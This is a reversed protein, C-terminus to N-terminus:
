RGECFAEWAAMIARRKELSDSRRYALETQDGAAHALCIEVSVRDFHTENGMYDRFSSRLGHITTQVGMTQVCFKYIAKGTVHGQGDRGPWVFANPDPGEGFANPGRQRMLLAFARDSLPVRHVRGAKMREAPVTWVREQWDVEWWKMGCVENERAATLVLFEIAYPSLADGQKQVARLARVFDPIDRYDLAKFHKKEGNVHPMLERMHERWEAVQAECLGKARAYRMVQLIAALARRAQNPATLWLTHLAAAIHQPGIATIPKASLDAAHTFLLVRVNKVSGPNRFRRAQIDLFEGAVNAFTVIAARQERKAEIPDEGKAVMRRLDHVKTRAESLTVLDLSGLGTETVRGVGPKTFRFIWRRTQGDPAVYLYLSQSVRHRGPGASQVQKVTWDRM